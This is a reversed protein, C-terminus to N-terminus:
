NIGVGKKDRLYNDKDNEETQAGRQRDPQICPVRDSSRTRLIMTKSHIYHFLRAFRVFRMIRAIDRYPFCM